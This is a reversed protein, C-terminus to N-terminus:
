LKGQINEFDSFSTWETLQLGYGKEIPEMGADKSGVNLWPLDAIKQMVQKIPLKIAPDTTFNVGQLGILVLEKSATPLM